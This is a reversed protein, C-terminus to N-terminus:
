MFCTGIDEINKSINFLTSVSYVWVSFCVTYEEDMKWMLKWYSM